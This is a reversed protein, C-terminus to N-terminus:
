WFLLRSTRNLTYITQQVNIQHRQPTKNYFDNKMQPVLSSVLSGSRHLNRSPSVHRLLSVPAASIVQSCRLEDTSSCLREM